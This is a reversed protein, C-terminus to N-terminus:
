KNYKDILASAEEFDSHLLHEEIATLLDNTEQAWARKRLETLEKKIAKKNMENCADKIVQLKTKLLTLSEETDESLENKEQRKKIENIVKDLKQLFEKTESLLLNINKDRGAQELKNAEASLEKEGINALASKMSHVNIIYLHIDDENDFEKQISNKIATVAKEADKAFIKVIQEDAQKFGASSNRKKDIEIKEKMAAEIVESPQKDRILRNLTRNLQHIDIPKSIFDDFGNNLFMEAHGTLANATLAVIPRTYGMNRLQKTTEIGDMKPMMHDMFVVDYIAGDKIKNIAEFGSTAIDIKLGYPLMLGKAVYLNTEVDDVILVSGYPMYEHILQTKKIQISSNQNLQSLNEAMNKGIVGEIGKGDTKQPLRVTFTSGEGVVSKVTIKGYMLDALNRTITMGLGAGETTRNAEMNFRTYEDFLKNVQENSMGQGTDSVEFILTVLVAGGGRGVCEANVSLTVIGEDTYKFANSLLNNLIQKIRLDDGVLFAPINEDVKIKFEIPKSVYRIYNLQIIDNILRAVEYKVPVLELKGAEIKSLDLIDNIINLLLNGSNNIKLFSEITTPSHATNQMQIETMGLIANLPTRIEHSMTALFNSKQQNRLDSKIKAQALYYLMTCLGWALLSGLLLLFVAMQNVNKYYESIPIVIGLFWNHKIKIFYVITDENMYNKIHRESVNKGMELEKTLSAIGSDINKLKEGIFYPERHAIIVMDNNILVGYSNETLNISTAYKTIKNLEIDICIIALPNDNDDTICRSLTLIYNNTIFDKYPESIIIKGKSELAKQYWSQNEPSFDEPPMWNRATLYKGGWTFFYGHTTILGSMLDRNKFIYDTVSKIYASLASSSEGRLLMGRITESYGGVFTEPELLNASIEAESFALATEAEKVLHKKEIRNAFFFSSISMIVFAIVIIFM